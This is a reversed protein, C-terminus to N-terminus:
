HLSISQYLSSLLLIITLPKIFSDSLKKLSQKFPLSLSLSIFVSPSLFFFLTYSCCFSTSLFTSLSPSLVLPPVFHPLHQLSCYFSVSICLSLPLSFIHCFPVCLSIAFQLSIFLYLTEYLQTKGHTSYSVFLGTTYLNILFSM